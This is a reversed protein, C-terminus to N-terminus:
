DQRSRRHREMGLEDLEQQEKSKREREEEARRNDRTIEAKKLEAFAEPWNIGPM